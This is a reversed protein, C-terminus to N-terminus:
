GLLSHLDDATLQGILSKDEGIIADALERKSKQLEIIKEEVTDKCIMRYANVCNTQGMRHARDIAQAETAPNWWPDLIFVSEAATLNLGTGGAKLSILFLQCDPDTQFRNVREARNNTKGDLYEYRWNRADLDQQVLQLLSTFQSFVLAKRGESLLEELRELLEDVKSGRVKSKPDVLRPDCAAQRLRMLAALVHIKAQNIGVEEVKKSLMLRYHNLLDSYLKKHKTSMECSLTQEIKEPLETLVESKTRRLIFPRLSKSILEVSKRQTEDQMNPVLRTTSSAGLLGPNLFDFLSWLDGLHNEVPTGTMALRHEARILRSAKAVQSKPNKIAQAEDLIAYDFQIPALLSADIRMTAYTTLLVDISDPNETFEKWDEKRQPGTHNRLRLKPAFKQAEEIWNFILSKPVVVISPHRTQGKKVRRKRRSELMALVQITKGLGMDDALCGGCGIQQLFKLWGLGLRQYERLKGDFSKIADAPKIGQFSKLQKVFKTFDHDSRVDAVEELMLDLLLGQSRHFRLTNDVQKASSQIEGFRTLWERPLMGMTGDDLLVTESGERLAKLLEPLAVSQDNFSIEVDLDFWDVDSTVNVDFSSAARLPAGNATVEWGSNQMSEVLEVFHEPALTITSEYSNRTLRLHSFDITSLQEKESELDRRYIQKSEPEYWWKKESDFRISRNPYSAALSVEYQNERHRLQKLTCSPKPAETVFEIQLEPALQLDVKAYDRSVLTLLEDLNKRPVTIEDHVAWGRLLDLCDPDILIMCTRIGEISDKPSPQWTDVDNDQKLDIGPKMPEATSGDMSDSNSDDSLKTPEAPLQVIACGVQSGWIVHRHSFSGLDPITISPAVFLKSSDNPDCRVAFSVVSQRDVSILDVKSADEFSSQSTGLKWALRGTDYLAQLSQALRQDSVAYECYSPTSYLYTRPSQDTRVASLLSFVRRENPDDIAKSQDLTYSVGTPRGWSGDKKRRSDMTTLIMSNRNLPHTIPLVFWTQSKRFSEPILDSPVGLSPKPTLLSKPSCRLLENRWSDQGLRVAKRSFEDTLHPSNSSTRVIPLPKGAEFYSPEIVAIELDVPDINPLTPHDFHSDFATLAAWVHDCNYGNRFRDCTCFIGLYNAELDVFDLMVKIPVRGPASIQIHLGDTGVDVVKIQDLMTTSSGDRRDDTGFQSRVVDTFQM